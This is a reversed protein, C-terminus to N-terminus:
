DTKLNGPEYTSQFIKGPNATNRFEETGETTTCFRRNPGKPEESLWYKWLWVSFALVHAKCSLM